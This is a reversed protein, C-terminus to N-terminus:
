QVVGAGDVARVISVWPEIQTRQRYEQSVHEVFAGANEELVLSV